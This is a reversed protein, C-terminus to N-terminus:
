GWPNAGKAADAAYAAADRPEARGAGVALPRLPAACPVVLKDFHQVLTGLDPASSALFPPPADFLNTIARRLDELQRGHRAFLQKVGCADKARVIPAQGYKSKYRDCFFAIAKSAEPDGGARSRPRSRSANSSQPEPPVLVLVQDLAQDPVQDQDQDTYTENLSRQGNPQGNPELRRSKKARRSAASAKGAARAREAQNVLYGIRARVGRVRLRGRDLEALDAAVLADGFGPRAVVADVDDTTLFESRQEYCFMWLEICLGLAEYWSAGLSKGLRKFKPDKLAKSDVNVRM